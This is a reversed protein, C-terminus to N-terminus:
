FEVKLAEFHCAFRRTKFRKMRTLFLWSVKKGSLLVTSLLSIDFVLLLNRIRIDDSMQRKKSKCFEVESGGYPWAFHRWKERGPVAHIETHTTWAQFGTPPPPPSTSVIYVQRLLIVAFPKPFIARTRVKKTSCDGSIAKKWLLHKVLYLISVNQPSQRIIQGLLLTLNHNNLTKSTMNAVGPGEYTLQWHGRLFKDSPKWYGKVGRVLKALPSGIGESGRYFFKGSPAWCGRFTTQLLAAGIVNLLWGKHM